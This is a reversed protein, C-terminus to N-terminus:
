STQKTVYWDFIVIISSKRLIVQQIYSIGIFRWFEILWLRKWDCLNPMQCKLKHFSSSRAISLYPLINCNRCRLMRLLINKVQYPNNFAIRIHIIWKIIEAGVMVDPHRCNVFTNATWSIVNLLYKWCGITLFLYHLIM